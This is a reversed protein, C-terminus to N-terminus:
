KKSSFKKYTFFGYLHLQDLWKILGADDKMVEDYEITLDNLNNTLSSQWLRYPSQYTENNKITYCHNRLGNHM